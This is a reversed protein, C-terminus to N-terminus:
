LFQYVDFFDMDPIADIKLRLNGRNSNRHEKNYSDKVMWCNDYESYGIICVACSDYETKTRSIDNRIDLMEKTLITTKPDGNNFYALFKRWQEKSLYFTGIIIRNNMAVQKAKNLKLQKCEMSLKYCEKKLIRSPNVGKHGYRTVINYVIATAIENAFTNPLEVTEHQDLHMTQLSNILSNPTITPRFMPSDTGRKFRKRFSRKCNGCYKNGFGCEKGCSVCTGM